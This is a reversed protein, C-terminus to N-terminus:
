VFEVKGGTNKCLLRRPGEPNATVNEGQRATQGGQSTVRRWAGPTLLQSCIRIIAAVNKSNQIIVGTKRQSLWTIQIKGGRNRWSRGDRQKRSRLLM